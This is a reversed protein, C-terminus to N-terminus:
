TLSHPPSEQQSSTLQHLAQKKASYRTTLEELGVSDAALSDRPFNLERGASDHFHYGRSTGLRSAGTHLARAGHFRRRVNKSANKESHEREAQGVRAAVGAIGTEPVPIL